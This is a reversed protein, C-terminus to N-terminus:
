LTWAIFQCTLVMYILALPYAAAYAAAVYDTKAVSMLTGLAPTSTRGGCISGLCQLLPLRFIRRAIFYGSILPVLTIVAGILFLGAGHKKVVEIFGSGADTGAGVMFLMLGFERLPELTKKPVDLSIPGVHGFHGLVLGAMLPGGSTGLRFSGGGPLPITVAALILGIIMATAFPFLGVTDLTVRKQPTNPVEGGPAAYQESLTQIEAAMDFRGLRPVLQIFLVIGVVGFPYAVGYGISAMSSGTAEIAAALGPTSTLAGSMMGIGLATPVKFLVIAGMTIAGGITIMIPGILISSVSQRKFGRFFVPGAMFGISGVFCALGLERIVSPIAIGFHGFVLAVLLIGSTGLQFGAIKINGALYGLAAILFITLLTSM